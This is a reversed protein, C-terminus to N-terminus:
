FSYPVQLGSGGPAGPKVNLLLTAAGEGYAAFYADKLPELDFLLTRGVIADCPDGHDDHTLAVGVQVPNSEMWGTHAVADLDHLDCGGGYTLDVRLIDDEVRADVITLPDLSFGDLGTAQSVILPPTDLYM